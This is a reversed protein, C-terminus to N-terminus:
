IHFNKGILTKKVYKARIVFDGFNEDKLRNKAYNELLPSLISVINNQEVNERYLKNLRTGYFSAGLYINYVNPSRGVFAIEGLYPRACGNPCGTMRINIKKDFLNYKKLVPELETILSPLYRESEAMALSCTNLGVCALSNKRIGSLKEVTTIINYKALLEVILQKNKDTIDSLVLNQNATIIFNCIKKSALKELGEKLKLETTNKVRGHEIYLTIFNNGDKDKQWGYLDGNQEFVVPKASMLEFELRKALEKKFWDIGLRDITYKFRAQTRDTRNGYDRQIQMVTIAVELLKDKTFFGVIDALRPYSNKHNFVMGMGGGVLLNFGILKNKEIIAIFGLDNIYIDVDNIPPIVLSTKFKRPLYSKSYITEKEKKNTSILKKDKKNKLWIEYYANTTPLLKDSLERACDLVESHAESLAPMASCCVNRNVDGCTAITDLSEKAIKQLTFKLNNKFVGHFQVAQRTTLKFNKIGYEDSLKSIKLWQQPTLFGGPIRIRLMFSYAPELKKRQRRLRIDRDDQQYIGHFKIINTDDDRISGTIDNALSDLLTGRLFDSNNKIIEVESLNNYEKKTKGVKSM